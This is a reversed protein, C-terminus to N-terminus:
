ITDYRRLDNILIMSKLAQVYAIGRTSYRDLKEALKIGSLPQSEDRMVQRLERFERYAYNTNLNRMYSAISEAPSNFRAVEHTMGARRSEPVIGCGQDFCWQGFLNNGAMAFRSTGWGSENASQSLVLSVPVIDIRQLLEQITAAEANDDPVLRYRNALQNLTLRQSGTLYGVRSYRESLRSLWTREVLIRDNEQQVFPVLFALFAEKKTPLEDISSFDPLNRPSSIEAAQRDWQAALEADVSQQNVLLMGTFCAVGVVLYFLGDRTNM